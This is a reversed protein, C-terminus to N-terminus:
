KFLGTISAPLKVAKFMTDLRIALHRRVLGNAAAIVREVGEERLSTSALVNWSSDKNVQFWSYAIFNSSTSVALQVMGLLNNGAFLISCIVISSPM